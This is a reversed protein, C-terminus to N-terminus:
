SWTNEDRGEGPCRSVLKIRYAVCIRAWWLRCLGAAVTWVIRQLANDPKIHRSLEVPSRRRAM